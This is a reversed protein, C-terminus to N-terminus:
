SAARAARRAFDERSAPRVQSSYLTTLAITDGGSDIFEVEYADGGRHLLVVTGIDGRSLGLSPLDEELVVCDLEDIM